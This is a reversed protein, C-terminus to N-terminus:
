KKDEYGHRIAKSVRGVIKGEKDVRLLGRLIAEKINEWKVHASKEFEEVFKEYHPIGAKSKRKKLFEEATFGAVKMGHQEFIKQSRALHYDNTLIAARELNYKELIKSVREANEQTNFSGGELLLAEEPIEPYKKRLYKYMSEAESPWKQGATKGGSFIIRDTFGAKFMEGAALTRMKGEHSLHHGRGIKADVSPRWIRGLVVLADFKESMEKNEKTEPASEFKM